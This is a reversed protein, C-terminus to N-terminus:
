YNYSIFDIHAAIAYLIIVALLSLAFQTMTYTDKKM